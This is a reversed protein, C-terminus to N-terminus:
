WVHYFDTHNHYCIEPEKPGATIWAYVALGTALIMAVLGFVAIAINSWSYARLKSYSHNFYAASNESECCIQVSVCFPVSPSILHLPSSDCDLFAADM